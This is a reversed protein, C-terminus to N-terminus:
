NMTQHRDKQQIAAEEDKTQLKGTKEAGCYDFM